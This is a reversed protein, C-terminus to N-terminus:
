RVRRECCDQHDDTREMGLLARSTPVMSRYLQKCCRRDDLNHAHTPEPRFCLAGDDQRSFNRFTGSGSLVPRRYRQDSQSPNRLHDRARLDPWYRAVPHTLALVSM